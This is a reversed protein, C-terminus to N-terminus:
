SIGNFTVWFNDVGGGIVFNAAKNSGPSFTFINPDAHWKNNASGRAYMYFWVPDGAALPSPSIKNYAAAMDAPFFNVSNNHMIEDTWRGDGNGDAPPRPIPYDTNNDIWYITFAANFGGGNFISFSSIEGQSAALDGASTEILKNNDGLDGAFRLAHLASEPTEAAKKILEDRFGGLNPVYQVAKAAWLPDNQLIISTFTELGLESVATKMIDEYCETKGNIAALTKPAEAKTLLKIALERQEDIKM